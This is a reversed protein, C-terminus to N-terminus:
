SAVELSLSAAGGFPVHRMLINLGQFGEMWWKFQLYYKQHCDRHLLFWSVSWLDCVTPYFFPSPFHPPHSPTLHAFFYSLKDNIIDISSYSPHHVLFFFFFFLTSTALLFLVSSLVLHTSLLIYWYWVQRKRERWIDNSRRMRTWHMVRAAGQVRNISRQTTMMAM